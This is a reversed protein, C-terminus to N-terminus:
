IRRVWHVVEAAYDIAIAMLVLASAIIIDSMGAEM